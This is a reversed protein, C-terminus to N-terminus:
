IIGAKALSYKGMSHMEVITKLSERKIDVVSFDLFNIKKLDEISSIDKEVIYRMTYALALSSDKIPENKVLYRFHITPFSKSILSEFSKPLFNFVIFGKSLYDNIESQWVKLSKLDISVDWKCINDEPSVMGMIPHLVVTKEFIREKIAKPMVHIHLGEWFKGKSVRWLPGMKSKSTTKLLRFVDFRKEHLFSFKGDKLVDIGCYGDEYSSYKNSAKTLYLVRM